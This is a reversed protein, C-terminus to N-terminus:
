PVAKPSAADTLQAPPHAPDYAVLTFRMTRYGPGSFEASQGAYRGPRDAQLRHLNVHGPIADMKGGLRPVWFSHIVDSSHIEVEFPQGAPVYVINKTTVAAGDPAPQVFRWSYRSAHAQVRIVDDGQAIMREGIWLASGLLMALVTMTFGLGWGTIWIRPSGRGAGSRIAGWLMAMVLITILTAGGAMIWWLRAIQAAAPGAPSLVSLPADCAALFPVM